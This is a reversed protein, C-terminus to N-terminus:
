YTATQDQGVAFQGSVPSFEFMGRVGRAVLRPTLEIQSANFVTAGGTGAAVPLSFGSFVVEADGVDGLVCGSSNIYSQLSGAVCDPYIPGAKLQPGSLAAVFFLVGCLFTKMDGQMM